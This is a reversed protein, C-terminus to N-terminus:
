NGKEYTQIIQEVFDAINQACTTVENYGYPHGDEWGKSVVLEAIDKSFSYEDMIEKILNNQFCLDKEHAKVYKEHQEQKIQEKTKETNM